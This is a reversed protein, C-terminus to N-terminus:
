LPTEWQQTTVREVTAPEGNLPREGPLLFLEPRGASYAAQFEAPRALARVTILYARRCAQTMGSVQAVSEDGAVPELAVLVQLYAGLQLRVYELVDPLTAEPTEAVAQLLQYTLQQVENPFAEALPRREHVLEQSAAVREGLFALSLAVRVDPQQAGTYQVQEVHIKLPYLLQGPASDRAARVIGRSLPAWIGLIIAVAAAATMWRGRKIVAPNLRWGNESRRSAARALLRSRGSRLGGPPTPVPQRYLDTLRAALMLLKQLELPQEMLQTAVPREDLCEALTRHAPGRNRLKM